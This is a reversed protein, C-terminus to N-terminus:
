FEKPYTTYLRSLFDLEEMAFEIKMCPLYYKIRFNFWNLIISVKDAFSRRNKLGNRFENLVFGLLQDDISRRKEISIGSDRIIKALELLKNRIENEYIDHKFVLFWDNWLQIVQRKETTLDEFCLSYYRIRLELKKYIEEDEAFSKNYAFSALASKHKTEYDVFEDFTMGILKENFERPFLKDYPSKKNLKFLNM